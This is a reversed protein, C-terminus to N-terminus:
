KEKLPLGELIEEAEEWSFGLKELYIVAPTRRLGRLFLEASLYDPFIKGDIKVWKNGNVTWYYDAM